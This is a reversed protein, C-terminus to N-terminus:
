NLEMLLQKATGYCPNMDVLKKAYNTVTPLDGGQKYFIVLAILVYLLGLAHHVEASEPTIQFAENLVQEVKKDQLLV